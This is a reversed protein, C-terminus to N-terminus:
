LEDLTLVAADIHAEDLVKFGERLDSSPGVVESGQSRLASDLARAQLCNKSIVPVYKGLLDAFLMTPEEAL